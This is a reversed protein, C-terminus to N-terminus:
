KEKLEIVAKAEEARSLQKPGEYLNFLRIRPLLLWQLVTAAGDSLKAEIMQKESTRWAWLLCLLGNLYFINFLFPRLFFSNNGATKLLILHKQSEELEEQGPYWNLRCGAMYFHKEGGRRFIGFCKPLHFVKIWDNRLSIGDQLPASFSSAGALGPSEPKSGPWKTTRGGAAM